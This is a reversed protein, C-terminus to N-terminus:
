TQSLIYKKIKAPKRRICRNPVNFLCCLTAHVNLGENVPITFFIRCPMYWYMLNTKTALDIITTQIQQQLNNITKIYCKLFSLIHFLYCKGANNFATSNCFMKRRVSQFQRLMNNLKERKLCIYFNRIHLQM